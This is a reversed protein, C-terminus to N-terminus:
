ATVFSIKDGAQVRVHYPSDAPMRSHSSTATPNSGITWRFAADAHFTIYRTTAAFAASAGATSTFSVPTQQVVRSSWKGITLNQESPYDAWEIVTGEAM